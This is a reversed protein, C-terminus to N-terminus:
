KELLKKLILDVSMAIQEMINFVDNELKIIEKM